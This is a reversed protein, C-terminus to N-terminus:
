MGGPAGSALSDGSLVSEIMGRDIGVAGSSGFKRLIYGMASPVSKAWCVGATLTMSSVKFSVSLCVFCTGYGESRM